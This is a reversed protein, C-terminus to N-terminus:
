SSPQSRINSFDNKQSENTGGKSEGMSSIKSDLQNGSSDTNREVTRRVVGTREYEVCLPIIVQLMASYILKWAEATEHTYPAGISKELTYFLVDGVIGYEVGRIGRECHRMALDEMTKVFKEKNKLCNLILSVMKVLFKGQSIIGSTFLPRCMPHVDFLREYFISYFWSICSAQHFNPDKKVEHFAPSKDEIIYSWSIKALQLEHDGVVADHTYYVPMMLLIIQKETGKIQKASLGGSGM